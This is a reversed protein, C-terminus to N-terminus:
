KKPIKMDDNAPGDLVKGEKSFRSGHCSCDWSHEHENWKLACGLHPCRKPKPNLLNLTSEVGNLLLQPHLMSRGPSFVEKYKNIKGSLMDSLLMASLMAGTMGWKCFGTAVFLNQTSKSYAGIYPMYDLSICDQAAWQCLMKSTPYHKQALTEIETWATTSKGTRHAGAGILLTDKYNRFSFGKESEDIYMGNLDPANDFAAVYSRNQYLKLPYLGHKNIFPFHTTVIVNESYIKGNDTLATKDIMEKIHTNEYITLDKSIFSLLKLPHFQAQNQFCVAGVTDIPLSLDEKFLAKYGLKNIADLEKELKSKNNLSYVYNDKVEFDCETKRCLDSLKNFAEINANLYGQAKYFGVSKILKNYILGHQFTIKATTNKTTGGCISGKECVICDIGKEKLLYATLIGTIGAGIILVDCKTDKQLTPFSPLSCTKSWLSQM